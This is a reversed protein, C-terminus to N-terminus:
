RASQRHEVTKAIIQLLGVASVPKLLYHRFVTYAELSRFQKLSYGSVAILLADSTEPRARL